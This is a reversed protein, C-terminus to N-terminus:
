QPGIGFVAPDYVLLQAGQMHTLFSLWKLYPPLSAQSSLLQFIVDLPNNDAPLHTVILKDRSDYGYQKALDDLVVDLGGIKDVLGLKLAEQGTWIHGKAIKEVQAPTMKRGTSVREIFHDYVSDLTSEFQAQESASFRSNMSMLAANQGYKVGDWTVDFRKWFEALNVKGGVVGISGTLTADMAYIKNAGASIWYGGSAALSGM